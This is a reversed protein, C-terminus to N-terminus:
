FSGAGAQGIGDITKIVINHTVFDHAMRKVEREISERVAKQFGQVGGYQKAVEDQVIKRVMAELGAARENHLDRISKAAEASVMAMAEARIDAVKIGDKVLQERVANRIDDRTKERALYREHRIAKEAETM